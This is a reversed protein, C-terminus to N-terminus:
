EIITINILININTIIIIIIISTIVAGIDPCPSTKRSM